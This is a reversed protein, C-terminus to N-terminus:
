KRLQNSEIYFGESLNDCKFVDRALTKSMREFDPNTIKVTGHIGEAAIPDVPRPRHEKIEKRLRCRQQVEKSVKKNFDAYCNPILKKVKGAIENIKKILAENKEFPISYNYKTQDMIEKNLSHELAIKQM